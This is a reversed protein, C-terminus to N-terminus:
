GHETSRAIYGKCNQLVIKVHLLKKVHRDVTGNQNVVNANCTMYIVLGALMFVVNQAATIVVADTIVAM